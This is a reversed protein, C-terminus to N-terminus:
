EPAKRRTKSRLPAARRTSTGRHELTNRGSGRVPVSRFGTGAARRALRGTAAQFRAMGDRLVDPVAGLAYRRTMQLSSHDLMEAVLPLNGTQRFLETGFSHRFDYPRVKPVVATPRKKRLAQEVKKRARELTYRLARTSFAGWAKLKVFRAFADHAERTMPKRVLPRPHRPRRHGKRRSPSLYWREKLNLHEPRLAKIQAPTMGTWAMIELRVRTKSGRARSGKVGKEPASRQRPMAELLRTILDYPLGRPEPAPEEFTRTQRVPNAAGRGGLRTYLSMLATRYKNVTSAAAGADRWAQLQEDIDRATITARPRRGFAKVWRAIERQRDTYSPMAQVVNLALYTDADRAFTGLEDVQRARREKHLREREVKFSAVFTQLEELTVNPKFRVPRSRGERWVYVRWGYATQYINPAVRVERTARRPM